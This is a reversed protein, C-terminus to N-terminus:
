FGVSSSRFVCRPQSEPPLSQHKKTTARFISDIALQSPPCYNFPLFTKCFCPKLSTSNRDPFYCLRVFVLFSTQQPCCTFFFPLVLGMLWGSPVTGLKLRQISNRSRTGDWCYSHSWFLSLCVREIGVGPHRHNSRLGHWSIWRSNKPANFAWCRCNLSRAAPFLGFRNQFWM